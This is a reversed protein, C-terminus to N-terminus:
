TGASSPVASRAGELVAEAEVRLAAYDELPVFGGTLYGVLIGDDDLVEVAHIVQLAETIPRRAEYGLDPADLYGGAGFAEAMAERRAELDAALFTGVVDGQSNLVGVRGEEDAPYLDEASGTGTSAQLDQMVLSTQSASPADSKVQDVTGSGCAAISLGLGAGLFWRSWLRDLM